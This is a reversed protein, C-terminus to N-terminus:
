RRSSFHRARRLPAVSLRVSLHSFSGAKRGPLSSRLTPSISLIPIQDFQKPIQDVQEPMRDAMPKDPTFLAILTLFTLSLTLSFITFQTLQPFGGWGKRIFAVLFKKDLCIPFM